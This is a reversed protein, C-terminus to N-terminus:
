LWASFAEHILRYLENLEAETVKIGLAKAVDIDISKREQDLNNPDFQETLRRLRKASHTDFIKELRSLTKDDLASVDLVPLLRWHSLKLGIWGGETEERNSLITLMGWVTNLWLCLAKYRRQTKEKKKKRLKVSYFINSMTPKTSYVALYHATNVRIRDPILLNSSFREFIEKGKKDNPSIKANPEIILRNRNEEEGGIVSPYADPANTEKFNSRFQHRDIGIDALNTLRTMKIKHENIVGHNLDHIITNLQKIPFAIFKGWNDINEEMENKSITQIIARTSGFEIYDSNKTILKSLEKAEFSTKPKKLLCVFKTPEIYEKKKQAVILVESLSTSESFNYGDDKDYSVVVYEIHFKELLYARILFWSIGTLLSKPLVFAIKGNESLYLSALYLFLAGEGAPGIGIHTKSDIIKLRKNAVQVLAKEVTDRVKSYEKVVQNRIAEDVIFGFLGAGSKGGRGTARTFPPNMVILNFRPLRAAEKERDIASIKSGLYSDDFYQALASTNLYKLSGLEIKGKEDKGLPMAYLNMNELPITPNQFVLNLSAIQVAYRLADFGWLNNELLNKHFKVLDVTGKEFNELMYADELSSYAANLLTGSGCAFDCLKTEEPNKIPSFESFVALHSLIYSAPITTFYTAFGKRTAWDGVVKHYVKGSFDKRLVSTNSGLKIGLDFISGLLEPPINEIVQKALSYIPTYNYNSIQKYATELGGKIEMEEKLKNLDSFGLTAQVAQYFTTSLLLTLFAQAYILEAIKKYNGYELGYLKYYIDYLKESIIQNKDMIKLKDVFDKTKTEIESIANSIFEEKSLFDYINRLISALGLIDVEEWETLPVSISKKNELWAYLSNSIDQKTVIKIDFKSKELQAKVEVESSDPIKEKYYLAIGIDGYDEEIKKNIDAEADSKSYSGELVIKIGGIFILVDPQGGGGRRTEAISQMGLKENLIESLLINLKTEFPKDM